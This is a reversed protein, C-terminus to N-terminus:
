PLVEGPSPTRHSFARTRTFGVLLERLQYSSRSFAQGALALSRADGPGEKRRMLYRFWQKGACARTEELGPLQRVLELGNKWKLEGSPLMLAGSTDLPKPSGPETTRWAGIADYNDFAFGLPDIILHCKACPAM